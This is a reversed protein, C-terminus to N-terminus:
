NYHYYVRYIAQQLASVGFEVSIFKEVYKARQGSSIQNTQPTEM